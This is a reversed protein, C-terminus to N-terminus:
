FAVDPRFTLQIHSSALTGRNGGAHSGCVDQSNWLSKYWHYLGSPALRLGDLGHSHYWDWSLKFHSASHTLQMCVPRLPARSLLTRKHGSLLYHHDGQKNNVTIYHTSVFLEDTVGSNFSPITSAHNQSLTNIFGYFFGSLLRLFWQTSRCICRLHAVPWHFLIPTPIM